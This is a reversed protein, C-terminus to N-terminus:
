RCAEVGGRSAQTCANGIWFCLKRLFLPCKTTIEIRRAVNWMFFVNSRPHSSLNIGAICKSSHFPSSRDGSLAPTYFSAARTVRRIPFGRNLGAEKPEETGPTRATRALAQSSWGGFVMSRVGARTVVWTGRKATRKPRM